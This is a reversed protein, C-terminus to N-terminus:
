LVIRIAHYSSVFFYIQGLDVEDTVLSYNIYYANEGLKCSPRSIKRIVM